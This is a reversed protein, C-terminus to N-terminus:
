ETGAEELKKIIKQLKLTHPELVNVGKLYQWEMNKFLEKLEKITQEQNM